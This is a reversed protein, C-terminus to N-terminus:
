YPKLTGLHDSLSPWCEIPLAEPSPIWQRTERRQNPPSSALRWIQALTQELENSAHRGYVELIEVVPFLSEQANAIGLFDASEWGVDVGRICLGHSLEKSVNPPYLALKICLKSSGPGHYVSHLHSRKMQTADSPPFLTISAVGESSRDARAAAALRRWCM